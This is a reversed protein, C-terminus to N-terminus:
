IVIFSPGPFSIPYASTCLQSFITVNRFFLMVEAQNMRPKRSGTFARFIRERRMNWWNLWDLMNEENSLLAHLKEYEGVYAAKTTATMMALSYIKFDNQHSEKLQRVHTNVSQQFHWECGKIKDMVDEGYILMLGRFNADAM